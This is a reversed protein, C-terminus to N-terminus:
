HPLPIKEHYEVCKSVCLLRINLLWLDRLLRSRLMDGVTVVQPIFKRVQTVM